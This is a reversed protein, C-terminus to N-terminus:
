GGAEGLGCCGAASPPDLCCVLQGWDGVGWCGDWAVLPMWCAEAVAPEWWEGMAGAGCCGGTTPLPLPNSTSISHMASSSSVCIPKCSELWPRPRGLERGGVCCSGDCGGSAGAAFGTSGCTGVGGCGSRFLECRRLPAGAAETASERLVAVCESAVWPAGSLPVCLLMGRHFGSCPWPLGRSGSPTGWLWGAGWTPLISRSSLIWSTTTTGCSFTTTTSFTTCTGTTCCMGTGTGCGTGMGM